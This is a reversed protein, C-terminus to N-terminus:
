FDLYVTPLNILKLVNSINKCDEIIVGSYFYAKRKKNPSDELCKKTRKIIPFVKSLLIAAVILRRYCRELSIFAL